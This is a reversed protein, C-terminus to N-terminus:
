PLLVLGCLHGVVPLEGGHDHVAQTQYDERQECHYRRDGHQTGRRVDDDRLRGRIARVSHAHVYERYRTVMHEYM